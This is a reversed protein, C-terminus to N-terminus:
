LEIRIWGPLLLLGIRSTYVVGSHILHRLSLGYGSTLKRNVLV